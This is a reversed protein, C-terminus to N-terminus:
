WKWSKILDFFSLWIAPNGYGVQIVQSLWTIIRWKQTIGTNKCPAYFRGFHLIMINNFKWKIWEVCNNIQCSFIVHNAISIVSIHDYTIRNHCILYFVSSWNTFIISHHYQIKKLFWLKVSHTNLHKRCLIVAVSPYLYLYNITNWESLNEIPNTVDTFIDHCSNIFFFIM